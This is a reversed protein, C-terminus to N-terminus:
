EGNTAKKLEGTELYRELLPALGDLFTRLHPREYRAVYNAVWVLRGAGLADIEGAYREPWPAHRAYGRRLAQRLPGFVEASVDKMLDQLAMALDQVPYGWVTDEFDLPCLRGRYVKINGHWLDNHIVRRGAPDAYLGALAKQAAAQARQLAARTRDTFADRCAEGWLVAEEGRAYLTDLQRQTFGPPPAFGAAHAHLRAFLEGMKALNDETLRKELPTGPLWRQVTCRRPEPVGAAAATVLLRGDRAPLPQPVPIDTERALAQLWLAESLLDTDTRWGPRCVRVAYSAGEATWVRFLTNTFTGVRRLRTVDLAYQELAARALAHLRRAQGRPHLSEFPKSQTM